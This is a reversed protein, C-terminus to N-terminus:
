AISYPRPSWEKQFEIFKEVPLPKSFFYGQVQDCGITRMFKLQAESEVGEGIVEFGMGKAMGAIATCLTADEPNTIVDRVFARDIKLSAFPFKKLYSLSSYGTGFDDLALTTGLEALAEFLQITDERDDMLLGETIELGLCNAQLGTENLVDTVTVLFQEGMVQRSSVNVAVRISRSGDTRWTRADRCATRMVWEGISVILGTEEAIAIFRDPPVFGLEPSNWRLLAEAGVLNGSKLDVIPQYHISFEEQELARRLLSEIQMRDIAAQNMASDFFRYTNRESDKAQYLATDANQMLIHPDDGDKPYTALGVSATLFFEQGELVFPSSYVELIRRAVAEVNSPDQMDPLIVLFEDGGFRAVVEGSEEDERHALTDGKRICSKLRSAAEILVTDGAAHGLTDNVNKFRDLDVFMLVVNRKNREALALSKSLYELAMARNPLETLVDFNAQRKLREESEIRESLDKHIGAVAVVNGPADNVPSLTISVPIMSGDKRMRDTEYSVAEGTTLVDHVHNLVDERRESHALMLVSQGLAEDQTYGYLAEAASNWFLIERDQNTFIIGDAADNVVSRLFERTLSEEGQIRGYWHRGVMVFLLFLLSGMGITWRARAEIKEQQEFLFSPESFAEIYINPAKNKIAGIEWVPVLTNLILAGSLVSTDMKEALSISPTKIEFSVAGAEMNLFMRPPSVINLDEDISSWIVKRKTSWVRFALVKEIDLSMMSFHIRKFYKKAEQSDPKGLTDSSFNRHIMLNIYNAVKNAEFQMAQDVIFRTTLFSSLLTFAVVCTLGLLWVYFNAKTVGSRRGISSIPHDKMDM